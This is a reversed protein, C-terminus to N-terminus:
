FTLVCHFMGDLEEDCMDDENMEEDDDLDGSFLLGNGTLDVSVNEDGVLSFTIEEGETFVIDLQQQEIKGPILNCLVFTSEETSVCVSVRKGTLPADAVISAMSIRFSQEVEQTYTKGAILRLAFLSEPLM